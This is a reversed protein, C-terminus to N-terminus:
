TGDPTVGPLATGITIVAISGTVPIVACDFETVIATWYIRKGLPILSLGRRLPEIPVLPLITYVGSSDVGAPDPIIARVRVCPDSKTGSM